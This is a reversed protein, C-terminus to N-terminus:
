VTKCIGKGRGAASSCERCACRLIRVAPGWAERRKTVMLMNPGADAAKRGPILVDGGGISGDGEVLGRAVTMLALLVHGFQAHLQAGLVAASQALEVDAPSGLRLDLRRRRVYALAAFLLALTARWGVRRLRGFRRGRSSIGCISGCCRLAEGDHM